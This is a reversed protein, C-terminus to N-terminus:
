ENKDEKDDNFKDCIYDSAFKGAVAGLAAGTVGRVVRMVPDPDAAHSCGSKKTFMYALTYASSITLGTKIGKTAATTFQVKM